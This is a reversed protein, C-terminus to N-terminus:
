GDQNKRLNIDEHKHASNNTFYDVTCVLHYLIICHLIIGILVYELQSCWYVVCQLVQQHGKGEQHHKDDEEDDPIEEGHEKHVKGIVFCSFFDSLNFIRFIINRENLQVFLKIFGFLVLYTLLLFYSM